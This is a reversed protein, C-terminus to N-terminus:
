DKDRQRGAIIEDILYGGWVMGVQAELPQATLRGSYIDVFKSHAYEDVETHGDNLHYGWTRVIVPANSHLDTCHALAPSVSRM